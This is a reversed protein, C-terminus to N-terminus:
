AVRMEDGEKVGGAHTEGQGVSWRGGRDMDVPAPRLRPIGAGDAVTLKVPPM